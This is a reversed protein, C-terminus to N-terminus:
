EMNIIIFTHLKLLIQFGNTEFSYLDQLCRLMQHYERPRLKYLLSCATQCGFEDIKTDCILGNMFSVQRVTFFKIIFKRSFVGCIEFGEANGNKNGKLLSHVLCFFLSNSSSFNWYILELIIPRKNLSCLRQFNCYDFSM